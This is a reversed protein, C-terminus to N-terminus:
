EVEISVQLTTQVGPTLRRGYTHTYELNRYKQNHSALCVDLTPHILHVSSTMRSVSNYKRFVISNTWYLKALNKQYSLRCYISAFTTSLADELFVSCFICKRYDNAKNGFKAWSMLGAQQWLESCQPSSYKYSEEFRIREGARIPTGEIVVDHLPSYFAQHRGADEDYEGIVEWDARKFVEKGLVRNANSLGNYYFELTKGVGDNYAHYVKDKDQCADIGILMSDQDKLIESFSRLFDAAETRSLNGISSGMWLICKSRKLNEPKKLWALGNDYTGLLGYCQM